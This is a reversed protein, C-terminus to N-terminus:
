VRLLICSRIMPSALLTFTILTINQVVSSSPVVVYIDVPIVGDLDNKRGFLLHHNKKM